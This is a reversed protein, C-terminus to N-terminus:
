QQFIKSSSITLNVKYTNQKISHILEFDNNYNLQLQQQIIQLGKGPKQNKSGEFSNSLEVAIENENCEIYCNLHGQQNHKIDSHKIANELLTTIIFPAIVKNEIAGEVYLDINTALPSQMELLRFYCQVYEVEKNLAIFQDREGDISYRLLTSFEHLFDPLRKDEKIILANLNNLANFIFHPNIKSKLSDLQLAKNNAQLILNKERLLTSQRLIGFFLAIGSFLVANMVMSFLNRNSSAEYLLIELGSARVVIIYLTILVLIALTLLSPRKNFKNFCWLSGYFLASYSLIEIFSHWIATLWSVQFWHYDFVFLLMFCWFCIHIGISKM